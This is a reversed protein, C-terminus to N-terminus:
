LASPINPHKGVLEEWGMSKCLYIKKSKEREILVIDGISLSTHLGKKRIFEQRDRTSLPNDGEGNTMMFMMECIQDDKMDAYDFDKTLVRTFGDLKEDTFVLKAETENFLGRTIQAYYLKVTIM